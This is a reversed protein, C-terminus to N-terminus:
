GGEGLGAASGGRRRRLGRPRLGAGKAIVERGVVVGLGGEPASATGGPGSFRVPAFTRQFAM